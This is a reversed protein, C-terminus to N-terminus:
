YLNEFVHFHQYHAPVFDSSSVKDSVIEILSLNTPTLLGSQKKVKNKVKNKVTWDM